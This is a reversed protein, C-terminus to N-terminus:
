LEDGYSSLCKAKPSNDGGNDTSVYSPTTTTATTTSSSNCHISQFGLQLTIVIKDVNSHDIGHKNLQHQQRIQHHLVTSLHLIEMLCKNVIQYYETSIHITKNTHYPSDVPCVKHLAIQVVALVLHHCENNIEIQKLTSKFLDVWNSIEKPSGKITSDSAMTTNNQQKDDGDKFPIFYNSQEQANMTFTLLWLSTILKSTTTVNDRISQCNNEVPSSSSSSPSSSSLNSYRLHFNKSDGQSISFNIIDSVKIFYNKDIQFPSQYLDSILEFSSYGSELAEINNSDNLTIARNETNISLAATNFSEGPDYEKTLMVTMPQSTRNWHTRMLNFLKDREVGMLLVVPIRIKNSMVDTDGSMAFLPGTESSTEPKNDVIIVGIAGAQALHYAKEVFVCGGRRVIGISGSIPGKSQLM